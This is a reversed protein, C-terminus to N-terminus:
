SHTIWGAKAKKAEGTVRMIIIMEMATHRERGTGEKNNPIIIAMAMAMRKDM